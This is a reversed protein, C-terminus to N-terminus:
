TEYQDRRKLWAMPYDLADEDRGKPLLDMLHYGANLMDLGRGYTSYTHVIADPEPKHFVSIGPAESMPFRSPKYNYQATGAAVAEPAFTVDFDHNFESGLSSAWDFNWGMRSRYHDIKALSTNSVAVFAADRHALHTELGNYGDAWFSCSTCGEEWDPGMMFHIVILQSKTGFLDGLSKEGADTQFRYDKEVRVWPMARRRASLADRAKTFAKEDELHARRAVLWDERSVIPNSM